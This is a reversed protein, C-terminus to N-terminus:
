PAEDARLTDDRRGCECTDSTVDRFVPCHPAHWTAHLAARLRTITAVHERCRTESQKLAQDYARVDDDREALAQAVGTILDQDPPELLAGPFTRQKWAMVLAEALRHATETMDPREPADGVWEAM